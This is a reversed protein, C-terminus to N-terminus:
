TNREQNHIPYFKSAFPTKEILRQVFTLSTNNMSTYKDKIQLKSNLIKNTPKKKNIFPIGVINHKVDTIHFTQRFPKYLLKNQEITRNPVLLLQIKGFNTLGSEQATALSNSTKSLLLKSRLIQIENWTRINIFNSEAGSDM